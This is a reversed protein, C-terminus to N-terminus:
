ANPDIVPATAHQPGGRVKEVVVDVGLLVVARGALPRALPFLTPWEFVPPFAFRHQLYLIYITVLALLTPPGLVLIARLRPRWQVAVVLAAVLLGAWPAVILAAVLGLLIPVAVRGRRSGSEGREPVPWEAWVDSDVPNAAVVVKKRRRVFAWIAIALCGLSAIASIWLAAWVRRQPTWELVVDFSSQKPNVRWGNAYGDVLQSSGLAGQGAITAHWGPSQSEGLVLWFPADAGTVHVRMRTEGNHVVTVTPAPAPASGLGTVQGGAVALPEGGAASALVLRDIQVGTRVGEATRVIHAGRSLSITPTRKPDRPDCPTVALGNLRSAATGPGIIRVPIPRGDISLLNSRCVSPMAAPAQGVRLGKIGLEAIGVPATVTDGTSERTALRPQVGTLTVRITRGTMPPFTLPVGQTANEAAHQTIPPLTLERAANDVQLLIQTPESHRGDAVVRLRMNSFTIPRDSHFQVWQNAAGVFPTNWATAANGDAASAAHCQLCGPLSESAAATVSNPVGLSADVSADSANPNV